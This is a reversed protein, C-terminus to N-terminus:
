IGDRKMRQLARNSKWKWVTQRVAKLVIAQLQMSDRVVKLSTLSIRQNLLM